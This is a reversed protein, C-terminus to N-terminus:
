VAVRLERAEVKLCVRRFDPRGGEGGCQCSRRWARGGVVEFVVVDVQVFCVVHFFFNYIGEVGTDYGTDGKLLCPV